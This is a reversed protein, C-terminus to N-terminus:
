AAWAKALLSASAQSLDPYENLMQTVCERTYRKVIKTTDAPVFHHHELNLPIPSYAKSFEPSVFINFPMIYTDIGREKAMHFIGAFLTRWTEMEEDTWPSAKPFNKPKILFTYPHLNWLTLANLRNEAMMDLFAEWYKLDSCTEQHQTLSCSHRYTDWPLDFKIARFHLPTSERKTQIKDIPIGNRLDEALSFAGYIVGRGDGGTITITKKSPRLIYAEEGLTSDMKFGIRLDANGSQVLYGNNSLTQTLIKVAYSTQLSSPDYQISVTQNASLASIWTLFLCNLFRIKVM